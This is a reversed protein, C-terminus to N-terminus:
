RAWVYGRGFRQEPGGRGTLTLVGDEDVQVTRAGNDFYSLVVKPFEKSSTADMMEPALMFLEQADEVPRMVVINGKDDTGVLHVLTVDPRKTNVIKTILVSPTIDGNSLTALWIHTGTDNYGLLVIRDNDIWMSDIMVNSDGGQFKFTKVPVDPAQTTSVTMDELGVIALHNGDPSVTPLRGFLTKWEGTTEGGYFTVGIVPECCAGAFIACTQPVVAVSEVVTLDGGYDNSMPDDGIQPLDRHGTVGPRDWLHVQYKDTIAVMGLSPNEKTAVCSPGPAVTTSTSTSTQSSSSGCAALTVVTVVVLLRRLM